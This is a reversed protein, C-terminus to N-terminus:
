MENNTQHNVSMDNMELTTHSHRANRVSMENTQREILINTTGKKREKMDIM